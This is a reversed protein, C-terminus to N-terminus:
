GDFGRVIERVVRRAAAICAPCRYLGTAPPDGCSLCAVITTRGARGQAAAAADHGYPQCPRAKLLLIGRGVLADFRRMGATRDRIADLTAEAV